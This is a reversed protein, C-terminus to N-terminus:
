NESFFENANRIQEKSCVLLFLIHASEISCNFDNPFHNVQLKGRGEHCKRLGAHFAIGTHLGDSNAVSIIYPRTSHTNITRDWFL